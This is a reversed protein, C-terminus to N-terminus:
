FWGVGSAAGLVCLVGLLGALVWTLYLPLVGTHARRLAEVFYFLIGSGVDYLDFVKREALRYLAGLGPLEQVTRYFDVGTVEVHREPGGTVGALHTAALVEGGAYTECARAKRVSTLLYVVLGLLVAAGLALTATGGWWVGSFELSEPVAPAVLFRLPLRYSAVGFAVCVAALLLMPLGMAPSAERVNAREVGATPKCLFVAHLVKAFSALTLASGLMAAVLWVVWAGGGSQGSQVIGQYVMWKSVFGNLPPVGSIALAAVLCAGFTLPMARALGGLRDLDTTGAKQEVSGACLFLCSKYVAHNLMHFLGGAIGVPVGTGIGLVMYGVQSVAHYSLLRKLDHQVLAMMVALIITAAGVVMLVQNMGWTMVFMGRAARALLYIGLLKDLSAPLFASVPPYAKEGCDPLWTHLPVAGAKAFAAAAVCLFAVVARPDALPLSLRSIRMTGALQGIMLIGLMLLCDSGGVIIFTKKAAGSAQPGSLGVMLYLTVGLMGWCVLLLMLDDALAVGCSIGVTWLLCAYYERLRDRGKMFGISYLAVLFGFVTMPLLVLGGLGDMRQSLWPVVQVSRPGARFLMWAILVTVGAVSVALTEALREWARPLVAVVLGAAV